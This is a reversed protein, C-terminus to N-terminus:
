SFIKYSGDEQPTASTTIDSLSSGAQPETLCMTGGWEGTLMNPLYTQRLKENGFHAILEGAGLTLGPYGPLSNNAADQIYGSATTVMGPLQLGGHEFDFAGAILGMEGGKKMVTGVQPHVIVKGDEFRAPDADMEALYPFLEKDSFDKVSDLFIDVSDKDHDAFHEQELVSNLDHVKYLLFKLTDMDMYQKAM